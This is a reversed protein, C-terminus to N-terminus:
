KSGEDPLNSIFTFYAETNDIYRRLHGSTNHRMKDLSLLIKKRLRPYDKESEKDVYMPYVTFHKSKGNKLPCDYKEIFPLFLDVKKEVTGHIVVGYFHLEEQLLYADILPQGFYISRGEDLTMTGFAIAGKHPIGAIFLDSMMGSVASVLYDFAEDSGDKSYLMISDSYTTTKVLKPIGKVQVDNITKATDIALMIKYLDSHKMRLVMDKFGMIDIFAVYRDITIPWLDSKKTM